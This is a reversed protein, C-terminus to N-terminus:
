NIKKKKYFKKDEYKRPPPDNITLWKKRKLIKKYAEIILCSNIDAVKAIIDNQNHHDSHHLRMLSYYRKRLIKEKPWEIEREEECSQPMEMGFLAYIMRHFKERYNDLPYLSYFEYFIFARWLPTNSKKGAKLDQLAIGRANKWVIGDLANKVFEKKWNQPFGNPKLHRTVVNTSIDLTQAVAGPNTCPHKELFFEIAQKELAEKDRADNQQKIIHKYMELAIETIKGSDDM